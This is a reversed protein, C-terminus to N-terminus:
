PSRASSRTPWWRKWSRAAACWSAAYPVVGALMVDREGDIGLVFSNPALPNAGILLVRRAVAESSQSGARVPLERFGSPPEQGRTLQRVLARFVLVTDGLVQGPLRYAAALWRIRVVVRDGAQNLAVEALLAALVAAGAGAGLEALGINDDVAVWLGMLLVWWVLWSGARRALPVHQQQRRPTGSPPENAGTM